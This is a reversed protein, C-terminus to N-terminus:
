SFDNNLMTGGGPFLNFFSMNVLHRPLKVCYPSSNGGEIVYYEAQPGPMQRRILKNIKSKYVRLTGDNVNVLAQISSPDGMPRITLYMNILENRHDYMHYPFIGASNKLLLFYLTKYLPTLGDIKQEGIFLDFDPSIQVPKLKKNRRFGMAFLLQTSVTDFFQIAQDIIRDDVNNLYLLQMCEECIDGTRLKLMIEVKNMCMDNMCGISKAHYTNLIGNNSGKVIFYRLVNAMIEYSVPFKWHDKLYLDWDAIHVFSNRALDFSTFFNFENRQTTLIVVFDDAPLDQEMRYEICEEFLSKWTRGKRRKIAPDDKETLKQKISYSKMAPEHLIDLEPRVKKLYFKMPGDSLELLELVEVFESNNCEDTWIIHINM